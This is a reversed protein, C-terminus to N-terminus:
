FVSEGQTNADVSSETQSSVAPAVVALAPLQQTRPSYVIHFGYISDPIPRCPTWVNCWILLQLQEIMNCLMRLHMHPINWYASQGSCQHDPTGLGQVKFM